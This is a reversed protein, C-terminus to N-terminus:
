PTLRSCDSRLLYATEAFKVPGRMAGLSTLYKISQAGIRASEQAEALCEKLTEALSKLHPETLMSLHNGTVPRVELGKTMLKEWGAVRVRTDESQFYVARGSYERPVYNRHATPYIRGYVVQDVYFTKLEPPLRIGLLHYVRCTVAKPIKRMTEDIRHRVLWLNRKLSPLALSKALPENGSHHSPNNTGVPQTRAPPGSDIVVLLAIEQALKQLQQAMEFAILGGISHGGIYYPGAPQVKRIEKVYHAAIAEISTYRVQREELHQALGYFPQDPGLHRALRGYADAGHACFFAPKSGTPQIAILPSSVTKGLSPLVSALQAVTPAKLLTAVPIKKGFSIEVESILRVALLSHGGLDFFDDDIGVRDLGLVEAWIRELKEETPYRPAAYSHTLEPRKPEPIPLHIRDIKGSATLPMADLTVFVSPVMYEPLKFRLFTRLESANMKTRYATTLYAAVRHEGSGSQISVVAADKVSPHERLTQEVETLDVGYGRVKVRFDKRGTHILCGDPLMLGLDGTYYLRKEPDYPDAIFRLKTLDPRRWYGPSLYRSRVVIEGVENPGLERGEEDLLLIQKDQVPYGVPLENGPIETEHNIVYECLVWTESSSLGHVLVCNPSFYKRFEEVDTKYAADSRLRLFRLDSFNQPGNLTRCLARFLTSSILCVSIKEEVLWSALRHVGENRVEFPCLTAGTLLAQFTNSIANSTATTLLAVRDHENVANSRTRLIHEHLLNRHTQIVGKPQGTSGSTYSISAIDAPSIALDLDQVQDITNTSEVFVLQRDSNSERIIAASLQRDSIVLNSESDALIAAIRSQPFAADLLVFFKGAKLVGLMAAVQEVGKDLLIGVPKGARSRTSLIAHAFRHAMVNLEAFSVVRNKAKVAIRNPFEKVIKEFCDPISQEVREWLSEAFTEAPHFGKDGITLQAPPFRSTNRASDNM